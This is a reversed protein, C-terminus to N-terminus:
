SSGDLIKQKQAEFEADTLVGNKRLEGLRELRSLTDDQGGAPANPAGGPATGATASAATAGSIDVGFMQQVKAMAEAVREPDAGGGSLDFILPVGATGPAFGAGAAGGARMQEALRQAAEQAATHDAAMEQADREVTKFHKPNDREFVVDWTTGADLPLQSNPVGIASEVAVPEVGEGQVVVQAIITTDFENRANTEEYSVLRATGHVPDKIRGFM